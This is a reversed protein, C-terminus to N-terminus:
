QIDNGYSWLKDVSQANAFQFMTMTLVLVSLLTKKM